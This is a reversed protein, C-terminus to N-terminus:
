SQKPKKEKSRIVMAIIGGRDNVYSQLSDVIIEKLEDPIHDNEIVDACGRLFTQFKSPELTKKVENMSWMLTGIGYGEKEMLWQQLDQALLLLHKDEFELCHICAWLAFVLQKRQYDHVSEEESKM